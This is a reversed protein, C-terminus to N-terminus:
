LFSLIWDGLSRILAEAPYAGLQDAAAAYFLWAFPLLCVIFLVPTAARHMLLKKM